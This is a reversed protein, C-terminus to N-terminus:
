ILNERFEFDEKVMKILNSNSSVKLACAMIGVIEKMGTAQRVLKEYDDITRIDYIGDFAIAYAYYEMKTLHKGCSELEFSVVTYNKDRVALCARRMHDNFQNASKRYKKILFEEISNM